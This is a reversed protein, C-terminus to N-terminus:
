LYMETYVKNLLEEDNQFEIQKESFQNEIWGSGDSQFVLFMIQGRYACYERLLEIAKEM